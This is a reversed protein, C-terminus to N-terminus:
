LCCKLLRISKLEMVAMQEIFAFDTSITPNWNEGHNISDM